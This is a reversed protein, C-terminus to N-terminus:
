LVGLKGNSRSAAFTQQGSPNRASIEKWTRELVTVRCGACRYVLPIDWALSYYHSACQPCARSYERIPNGHMTYSSDRLVADPFKEMLPELTPAQALRTWRVEGERESGAPFRDWAIVVFAWESDERRLEITHPHFNSM